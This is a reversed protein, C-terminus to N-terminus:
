GRFCISAAMCLTPGVARTAAWLSGSTEGRTAAITANSVWHGPGHVCAVLTVVSALLPAVIDLLEFPPSTIIADPKVGQYLGFSLADRQLEWDWFPNADNCLVKTGAAGCVDAIVGSGAFPDLCKLGRPLDLLRLLPMVEDSGTPVWGRLGEGQSLRVYTNRLRSIYTPKHPGPMLGQLALEVGVTTSLELSGPEQQDTAVVGLSLPVPIRMGVPLKTGKETLWGQSHRKAVPQNGCIEETGDQYVVHYPRRGDMNGRYYIRGWLEGDPTPKKM